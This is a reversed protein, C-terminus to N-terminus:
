HLWCCYCCCHISDVQPSSTTERPKLTKVMTDETSFVMTPSTTWRSAKLVTLVTDVANVLKQVLCTYVTALHEVKKKKKTQVGTVNEPPTYTPYKMRTTM